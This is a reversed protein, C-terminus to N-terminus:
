PSALLLRGRHADVGPGLHLSEKQLSVLSGWLLWWLKWNGGM